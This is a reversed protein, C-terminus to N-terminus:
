PAKAAGGPNITVGHQRLQEVINRANANGDAALKATATAVADLSTRVKTAALERPGLNAEVQLLLQRDRWQQYVQFGLWGVFALSLLLLPVFPSPGAPRPLGISRLPTPFEANPLDRTDDKM